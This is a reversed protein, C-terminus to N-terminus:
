KEGRPPMWLHFTLFSRDPEFGARLVAKQAAVNGLQTQYTASGAGCRAAWALFEELLARQIGRGRAEPTVGFLAGEAQAAASMRVAAFGLLSGNEEAVLVEDAVKRDSCARYAWDAYVEDCADRELRPDAHYHSTYGRFCARALQRVRDAELPLCARIRFGGAHVPAADTLRARRFRLLVDTLHAGDSEMRQALAIRASDIRAILLQVEHRACFDLTGRWETESEPAAKAVRRGFRAGDLESLAAIGSM